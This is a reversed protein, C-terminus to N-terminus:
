VLFKGLVIGVGIASGILWWYNKLLSSIKLEEELKRITKKYEFEDIKLADIKDKLDQRENEKQIELEVQTTQKKLISFYNKFSEYERKFRLLSSNYSILSGEKTSFLKGIELDEFVLRLLNFDKEIKDSDNKFNDYYGAIHLDNSGITGENELLRNLIFDLKKIDEETVKM